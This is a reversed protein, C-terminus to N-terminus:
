TCHWLFGVSELEFIGITSKKKFANKIQKKIKNPRIGIIRKVFFSCRKSRKQPAPIAVLAIETDLSWATKVGILM